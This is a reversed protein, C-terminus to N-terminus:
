GSYDYCFSFVASWDAGNLDAASGDPKHLSVTLHSIGERLSMPLSVNDFNSNANFIEVYQSNGSMGIAFNAYFGTSTTLALPRIEDIRILLFPPFDLRVILDGTHLMLAPTNSATSFGIERWIANATLTCRLTIAQDCTITMKM